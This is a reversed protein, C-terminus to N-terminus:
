FWTDSWTDALKYGLLGIVGSFIHGHVIFIYVKSFHVCFSCAFAHCYM